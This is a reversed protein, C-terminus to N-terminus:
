KLDIKYIQNTNKDTFFVNSEDKAVVLSSINYQNQPIAVLKKTGTKLDIKYLKDFTKDALDPFIGSGVELENPVACYVEDNGVFSCKDAWTNLELSRRGTGISNGQANVIWLVPKLDSNANYASYLLKDGKESWKAQIGRGEVITSKFNEENQGVFFLEQRNFDIGETYMAIVQNNPSWSNIVKDANEGVAEIARAKSGDANSTILWRNDPDLGISKSVLQNSDTSFSFDEWHQPLTVQKESNFDYVINSGDPYELVAKSKSPAWEVNEVDHFIKDSLPIIDGDESVKYFKGDEKNYYQVQRGDGSLTPNLTKATVLTSAITLGGRAIESPTASIGPIPPTPKPGSEPVVGPETTTVVQGPQGEGATPLGQPTGTPALEEPPTILGPGKFFTQWILYGMLIVVALFGLVLLIKKKSFNM